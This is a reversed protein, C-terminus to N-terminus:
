ASKGQAGSYSSGGMPTPGARPCPDALASGALTNRPPLIEPRIETKTRMEQPVMRKLRKLDSPAKREIIFAPGSTAKHNCYQLRLGNTKMYEIKAQSRGCSRTRELQGTSTSSITSRDRNGRVFLGMNQTHVGESNNNNRSNNIGGHKRATVATTM